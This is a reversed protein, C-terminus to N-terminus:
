RVCKAGNSALYESVACGKELAEDVLEETTAVREEHDQRREGSAVDAEGKAEDADKAFEANAENTANEIVSRDYCSKLGWLLLAAVVVISAIAAARAFKAGVVPALWGALLTIM